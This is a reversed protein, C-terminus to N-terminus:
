LLLFIMWLTEGERYETGPHCSGPNLGRPLIAKDFYWSMWLMPNGCAETHLQGMSQSWLGEWDLVWLEEVGGKLTRM